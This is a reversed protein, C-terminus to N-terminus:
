FDLDLKEVFPFRAFSQFDFDLKKAFPFRAFRQFDFDLKKVVPVYRFRSFWLWTEECVSDKRFKSFWLWNEESVFNQQAVKWCCAQILCRGLNWRAPRWVPGLDHNNVHRDPSNAVVFWFLAVVLIEARQGGYQGLIMTTSMDTPNDGYSAPARLMRARVVPPKM